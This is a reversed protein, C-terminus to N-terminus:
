VARLGVWVTLLVTVIAITKLYPAFHSYHRVAITLGSSASTKAAPIRVFSNRM